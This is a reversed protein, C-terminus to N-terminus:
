ADEESIALHPLTSPGTGADHDDPWQAGEAGGGHQEDFVDLSLPSSVLTMGARRPLTLLFVAGEGLRGKAQLWGGHLMADELAISLGLGTGGTTRARAPDARWFRDFVRKAEDVSLGVGYDRVRVAVATADGALDVEVPGGEAHEIANFLLNRLIREVRVIDVDAVQEGVGLDVTLPVQKRDALPRVGDITAEVVARLDRSEADLTAAGADFRSVELLEGLLSEFRDLQMSMLEASRRVPPEFSERADYLLESAMRVTTLPTRLEHSVDSVFRRQLVSLSALREIQEQLSAAMANFSSGLAAVEDEGQITLREDLHGDALREAAASVAVIPSVVQRTVMWTIAGLLVALLGIGALLVQQILTLTQQEPQLSYLFYLEFSGAVPLDVTSGVVLGPVSGGDVPIAVSQWHQEGPGAVVTTRLTQTVVVGLNQDTSIDNVSVSPSTSGQARWLFVDREGAAGSQLSALTDKLLQQVQTSNAATSANFTSQAGSISRASESLLADVRQNFIGNRITTSLFVSLLLLSILTVALTTFIVKLQLSTRWVRTTARLMRAVKALVEGRSMMAVHDHRVLVRETASVM